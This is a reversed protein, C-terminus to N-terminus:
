EVGNAHGSAWALLKQPKADAYLKLICKRKIVVRMKRSFCTSCCKWLSDHWM